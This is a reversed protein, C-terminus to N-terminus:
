RYTTFREGELTTFARMADVTMCSHIPLIMLFDGIKIKETKEKPAHIVGHEQSLSKVYMGTEDSEWGNGKKTVVKGYTVTGDPQKWSDKAFHIGGGHVVVENREPYTAVVPCALAVAVQDVSCSGILTQMVDFFVLNGPRIEDVGEFNEAVSCTPTDGPALVLNPYEAKYREKLPLIMAISEKHVRLIENVGTVKYSHGAHGLFGKFNFNPYKKIEALIADITKFDTPSVGSRHYGNDAEIFINVAHKVERALWGITEPAVILLNLTITSALRNIREKEHVNVPFAVTIDKWGDQAFYEAMELSSVTIKTVGENRFWRGVEHSQHTKFHPRFIVNNRKAKEVMKKINRICKQKDLLLTPETLTLM